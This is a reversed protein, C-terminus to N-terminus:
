EKEKPAQRVAKRRLRDTLAARLVDSRTGGEERARVDLARVLNPPMRVLVIVSLAKPDLRRMTRM